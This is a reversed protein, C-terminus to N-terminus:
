TSSLQSPYHNTKKSFWGDHAFEVGAGFSVLFDDVGLTSGVGVCLTVLLLYFVVFAPQSIYGRKDSFRLAKYAITGIILGIALGLTCQWLITVLFM